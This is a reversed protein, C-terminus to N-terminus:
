RRRDAGSAASSEPAADRDAGPTAPRPLTAAELAALREEFRRMHDQIHDLRRMLTQFEASSGAEAGDDPLALVFAGKGQRTSVVGSARLERLAMRVVTSSAAYEQMLVALSPLQTGVPYEGDRIRGRIHESVQQYAPKEPRDSM